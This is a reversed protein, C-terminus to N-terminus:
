VSSSVCERGAARPSEALVDVLLQEVTDRWAAEDLERRLGHRRVFRHKGLRDLARIAEMVAHFDREDVLQKIERSAADTTSFVGEAVGQWYAHQFVCGSVGGGPKVWCGITLGRGSTQIGRLALQLLQRGREDEALAELQRRAQMQDRTM